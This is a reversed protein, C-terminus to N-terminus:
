NETTGLVRRVLAPTLRIFRIQSSGRLIATAVDVALPRYTKWDLHLTLRTGKLDFHLAQRRPGKTLTVGQLRQALTALRQALVRPCGGLELLVLPSLAQESATGGSSELTHPLVANLAYGDDLRLATARRSQGDRVFWTQLCRGHVHRISGIQFVSDVLRYRQLWIAAQLAAQRASSPETLAVRQMLLGAGILGAVTAAAAALTVAVAKRNTKRM